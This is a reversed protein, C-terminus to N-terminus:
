DLDLHTIEQQLQSQNAIFCDQLHGSIFRFLEDPELTHLALDKGVIMVTNGSYRWRELINDFLRGRGDDEHFVHLLLLTPPDHRPKLFPQLIFFM